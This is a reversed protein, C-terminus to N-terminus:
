RSYSVLLRSGATLNAGSREPPAQVFYRSLETFPLKCLGGEPASRPEEVKSAWNKKNRWTHLPGRRHAQYWESSASAAEDLMTKPRLLTEIVPAKLPAFPGKREVQLLM